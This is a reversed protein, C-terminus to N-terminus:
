GGTTLLTTLHVALLVFALMIIAIGTFKISVKIADFWTLDGITVAFATNLCFLVAWIFVIAEVFPM